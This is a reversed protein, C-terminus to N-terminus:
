ASQRGRMGVAVAAAALVGAGLLYPPPDRAVLAGVLCLAALALPLAAIRRRVRASGIILAAGFLLSLAGSWFALQRARIIRTLDEEPRGYRRYFPELDRPDAGERLCAREYSQLAEVWVKAEHEERRIIKESVPRCRNKRKQIAVPDPPDMRHARDYARYALATDGEAYLADGLAVFLRVSPGAQRILRALAASEEPLPEPVATAPAPYAEVFEPSHQIYKGSITQAPGFFLIM